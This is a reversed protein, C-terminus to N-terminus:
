RGQVHRRVQPLTCADKQPEAGGTGRLGIERLVQDARHRIPSKPMGIPSVAFCTQVGPSKKSKSSNAM